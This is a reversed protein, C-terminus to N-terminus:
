SELYSAGEKLQESLLPTTRNLGVGRGQLERLLAVGAADADTAERLAPKLVDELKKKGPGHYVLAKM